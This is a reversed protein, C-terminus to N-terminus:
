PTCLAAAGCILSCINDFLSMLLCFSFLQSPSLLRAEQPQVSGRSSWDSQELDTRRWKVEVAAAIVRQSLCHKISFPAFDTFLSFFYSKSQPRNQCSSRNVQKGSYRTKWKVLSTKQTYSMKRWTFNKDMKYFSKIYCSCLALVQCKNSTCKRNLEGQVYAMFCQSYCRPVKYDSIRAM